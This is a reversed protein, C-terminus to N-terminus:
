LKLISSAIEFIIKTSDNQPLGNKLDNESLNLVRLWSIVLTKADEIRNAKLAKLIDNVMSTSTGKDKSNLRDLYSIIEDKNSM